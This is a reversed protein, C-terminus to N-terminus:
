QWSWSFWIVSCTCVTHLNYFSGAPKTPNAVCKETERSKDEKRGMGCLATVSPCVLESCTAYKKIIHLDFSVIIETLSWTQLVTKMQSCCSYCLPYHSWRTLFDLPWTISPWIFTSPSNLGTVEHLSSPVFSSPPLLSFPWSFFHLAVM